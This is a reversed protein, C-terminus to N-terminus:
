EAVQEAEQEYKDDSHRVHKAKKFQVHWRVLGGEKDLFKTVGPLAQIDKKITEADKDQPQVDFAEGSLHKSVKARDSEAMGNMVTKLGFAVVTSSIALPNSVTIFPM